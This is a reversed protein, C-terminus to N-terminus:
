MSNDSKSAKFAVPTYVGFITKKALDLMVPCSIKFFIVHCLHQILLYTFNYEKANTFFLLSQCKNLLVNNKAGGFLM